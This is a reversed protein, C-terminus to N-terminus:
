PKKFKAVPEFGQNCGGISPHCVHTTNDPQEARQKKTLPVVARALCVPCTRAVKELEDILVVPPLARDFDVSTIPITSDM